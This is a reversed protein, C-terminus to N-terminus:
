AKVRERGLEAGVVEAVEQQGLQQKGQQALGGGVVEAGADDDEGALSVLVSLHVPVVDVPLLRAAVTCVSSVALGLQGVHQHSVTAADNKRGYFQYKQSQRGSGLM